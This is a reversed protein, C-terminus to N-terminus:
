QSSYQLAVSILLLCDFLACVDVRMCAFWEGTAPPVSIM